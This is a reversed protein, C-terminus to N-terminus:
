RPRAADLVRPSEEAGSAPSTGRTWRRLRVPRARLLVGVAAACGLGVLASWGAGLREAVTGMVAAGIGSGALHITMRWAFTETRLGATAVRTTEAILGTFGGVSPLRGVVAVVTMLWLASDNQAVLALPALALAWLLMWTSTRVRGWREARRGGLLASAAMAGVATVGILVGVLGVRGTATCWGIVAYELGALTWAWGFIATLVRPAGPQRFVATLSARHERKPLHVAGACRLLLAVGAAMLASSALFLYGLQGLWTALAVVGAGAVYFAHSLTSELANVKHLRGAPVLDNWAVRIVPGAPPVTAGAIGALALFVSAQGPLWGFTAAALLALSVVHALGTLQLVIRTGFGDVLRGAAPTGVAMGAICAAEAWGAVELSGTRQVAALVITLAALSVPLRALVFALTLSRFGPLQWISPESGQGDGSGHPVDNRGGRGSVRM